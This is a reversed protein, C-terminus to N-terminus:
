TPRRQLAMELKAVESPELPEIRFNIYLEENFVVFYGFFERGGTKVRVRAIFRGKELRWEPHKFGFLYSDNNWVFCNQDGDERYLIATTTCEGTPIDYVKPTYAPVAIIGEPVQVTNPKPEPTDDWRLAVPHSFVSRYDDPYHFTIWGKCGIAYSRDYFFAILRKWGSLAENCIEVKLWTAAKRGMPDNPFLQHPPTISISIEPRTQAAILFTIILGLFTAILSIFFALINDM